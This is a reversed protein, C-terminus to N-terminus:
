ARLSLKMKPHHALGTIRSENSRASTVGLWPGARSSLAGGTRIPVLPGVGIPLIESNLRSPTVIICDVSDLSPTSRAIWGWIQDRHASAGGPTDKALGLHTRDEHYYLVYQSMLRKLHRENLVIM